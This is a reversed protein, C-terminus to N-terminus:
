FTFCERGRWLGRGMESADLKKAEPAGQVGAGGRAAEELGKEGGGAKGEVSKLVESTDRKRGKRRKLGIKNQIHRWREPSRRPGRPRKTQRLNEREREKKKNVLAEL